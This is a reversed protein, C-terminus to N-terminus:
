VGRKQTIRGEDSEEVGKTGLCSLVCFPWHPLTILSKWPHSAGRCVGLGDRDSGGERERESERSGSQFFLAVFAGASFVIFVALLLQSYKNFM